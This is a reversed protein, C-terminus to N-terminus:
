VTVHLLIKAPQLKVDTDFSRVFARSTSSSSSDRSISGPEWRLL